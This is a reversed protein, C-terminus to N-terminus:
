KAASKAPSSACDYVAILAEAVQLTKEFRASPCWTSVQLVTADAWNSYLPNTKIKNMTAEASAQDPEPIVTWFYTGHHFIVANKYGARWARVPEWEASPGGDSGPAPELTQDASIMVGWEPPAPTQSPNGARAVPSAKNEAELVPEAKNAEPTTQQQDRNKFLYFGTVAAILLVVILGVLIIYLTYKPKVLVPEPKESKEKTASLENKLEAIQAELSQRNSRNLEDIRRRTEDREASTSIFQQEDYNLEDARTRLYGKAEELSDDRLLNSERQNARRWSKAAENIAQRWQLFEHDEQVWRRYAPWNELIVPDSLQLEQIGRTLVSKLVNVRVLADASEALGRPLDERDVSQPKFGWSVFQVLRSLVQESKRQLNEPLQQYAAEAMQAADEKIDSPRQFWEFARLRLEEPLTKLSMASDQTLTRTLRGIFACISLQDDPLDGFIAPIEEFAYVPVYAMQSGGWYTSKEDSSYDVLYRSFTKQILALAIRKKNYESQEIRTPVPYIRFPDAGSASNEETGQKERREMRQNMISECVNAAGRISQENLTFCVVLADPMEVTCIGSTDSVGTRSDILIYDYVDKVQAAIYALFRRGGLKQYFSIWNFSNVKTSYGASQQGAPLLDIGARDGFKAWDWGEHDLSLVLSSIDGEEDALPESSVAQRAALDEVLDILGRSSRLEKDELFPHFYRHVGPAELDWDIVLVRKNNLALMWAVNALAMSRGTGGKYSYFTLIKGPLKEAPLDSDSSPAQQIM